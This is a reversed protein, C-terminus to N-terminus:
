VQFVKKVSDVIYQRQSIYVKHEDLNNYVDMGCGAPSHIKGRFIDDWDENLAQYDVSNDVDQNSMLYTDNGLLIDKDVM